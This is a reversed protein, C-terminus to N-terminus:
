LRAAPARATDVASSSQLVAVVAHELIGGNAYWCATRAGLVQRDGCAGRLQKVAEILSQLAPVYWPAGHALLGGHTNLPVIQGRAAAAAANRVWLGAGGRPCMRTDELARMVAIPFCDYLFYVDMPPARPGLSAFAQDAARACASSSPENPDTLVSHASSSAEGLSLVSVPATRIRLAAAAEPGCAIVCGAGDALLAAEAKTINPTLERSALVDDVTMPRRRVAGPHRAAQISMLAAVAALDRRSDQGREAVFAATVHEYAQAPLAKRAGPRKEMKSALAQAGLTGCNDACLIAVVAAPRERVIRAAEILLSGPTAGGTDITKCLVDPRLQALGRLQHAAMFEHQLHNCALLADVHQAQLGADALAEAFAADALEFVTLGSEKACCGASVGVLLLGSSSSSSSPSLSSSPSSSSSSSSDGEMAVPNQDRKKKEGKMKQRAARTM